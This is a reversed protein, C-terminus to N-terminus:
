EDPMRAALRQVFDELVASVAQRAAPAAAAMEDDFWGPKGPRQDVWTQRGWTPHRFPKDRNMRRPAHTFGRVKVTKARVTAGTSKGSLRVRASVSRAIAPRLAPRHAAARGSPIAGAAAKARSVAPALADKLRAAMEKRLEKGDAEARLAKTIARLNDPDPEATLGPGSGAM